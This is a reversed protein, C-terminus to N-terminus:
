GGNEEEEMIGLRIAIRPPLFTKCCEVHFSYEEWQKKSFKVIRISVWEEDDRLLEKCLACEALRHTRLAMSLLLRPDIERRFCDYHCAVFADKFPSPLKPFYLLLALTESNRCSENCLPCLYSLSATREKKM